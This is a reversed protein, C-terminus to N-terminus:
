DPQRKIDVIGITEFYSNSTLQFYNM